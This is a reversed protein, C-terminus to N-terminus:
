IHNYNTAEFQHKDLLDRSPRKKSLSISDLWEAEIIQQNLEKYALAESLQRFTNFIERNTDPRAGPM